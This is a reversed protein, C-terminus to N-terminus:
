RLTDAQKGVVIEIWPQARQDGATISQISEINTIIRPVNAVDLDLIGICSDPARHRTPISQKFPDGEPLVPGLSVSRAFGTPARDLLLGRDAAFDRRGYIGRCRLLLPQLFDSPGPMRSM